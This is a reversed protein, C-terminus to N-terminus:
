INSRTLKLSQVPRNKASIKAFTKGSICRKTAYCGVYILSLVNRTGSSVSLVYRKEKRYVTANAGPSIFVKQHKKAIGLRKYEAQLEKKSFCIGYYIPSHVLTLDSYEM